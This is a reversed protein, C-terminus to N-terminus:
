QCAQCRRRKEPKSKDTRINAIRHGCELVDFGPVREAIRRLPPLFGCSFRPQMVRRTM